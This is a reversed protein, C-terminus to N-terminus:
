RFFPQATQFFIGKSVLTRHKKKYFAIQERVQEKEAAYLEDLDLEYGLEGFYAVHARTTLPTMRSFQQNPIAPMHNGMSSLPYVLSTGWQIRLREIADSDDNTWTQPAFALIGPDFRVTTRFGM